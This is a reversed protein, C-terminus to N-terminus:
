SINMHLTCWTRFSLLASIAVITWPHTLADLEQKDRLFWSHALTQVTQRHVPRSQELREEGRGEKDEERRM